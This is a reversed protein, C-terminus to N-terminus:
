TGAGGVVMLRGREPLEEAGCCRVEGTRMFSMARSM